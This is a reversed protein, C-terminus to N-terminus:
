GVRLGDIRRAILAATARAVGCGVIRQHADRVQARVVHKIAAGVVVAGHRNGGVVFDRRVEVYRAV